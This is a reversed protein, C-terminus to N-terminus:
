EINDYDFLIMEIALKLHKSRPWSRPAANLTTFYYIPSNTSQCVTEKTSSIKLTALPALAMKMAPRAFPTLQCVSEEASSTDLIALLALAMILM